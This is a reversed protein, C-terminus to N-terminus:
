IHRHLSSRETHNCDHTVRTARSNLPSFGGDKYGQLAGDAPHFSERAERRSKFSKNWSATAVETGKNLGATRRCLFDNKPYNVELEIWASHHTISLFTPWMLWQKIEGRDSSVKKKKCHNVINKGWKSGSSWEFGFMPETRSDHRCHIFLVSFSIQMHRYCPQSSPVPAM